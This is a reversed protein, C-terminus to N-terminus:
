RRNPSLSNNAIWTCAEKGAGHRHTWTGLVFDLRLRKSLSFRASEDNARRKIARCTKLVSQLVKSCFRCKGGQHTKHKKRWIEFCQSCRSMWITDTKEFGCDICDRGQNAPSTSRPVATTTTTTAMEEAGNHLTGSSHFCRRCKFM